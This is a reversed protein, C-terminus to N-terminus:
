SWACRRGGSARLLRLARELKSRKSTKLAYRERLAEVLVELDNESGGLLEIEVEFYRRRTGDPLALEVADLDIEALPAGRPARRVLLVRRAVRTVVLAELPRGRTWGLVRRALASGSPRFPFTPMRRLRVTVEERRHVARAVEGPLKLTLEFRGGGRRVRLAIRRRQLDRRRTDLYITELRREGIPTLRYRGLRKRRAIAALAARSPALLKAEVEM